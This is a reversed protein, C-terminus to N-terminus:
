RVSIRFEVRQRDGQTVTNGGYSGSRYVSPSTVSWTGDGRVSTVLREPKGPVTVLIQEGATGEGSFVPRTGNAITTSSTLTLTGPAVSDEDDAHSLLLNFSVQEGNSQYVVNEFYDGQHYAQPSTVSWTGDAAVRADLFEPKGPIVIVLDSGPTGVGSFVPHEGQRYETGTSLALTQTQTQTQAPAQVQAVDAAPADSSVAAVPLVATGAALLTATAITSILPM